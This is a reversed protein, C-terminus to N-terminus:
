QFYAATGIVFQTRLVDKKQHSIKAKDTTSPHVKECEKVAMAVFFDRMPWLVKDQHQGQTKSDTFDISKRRSVFIEQAYDTVNQCNKNLVRTSAGRELLFRVVPLSGAKTALHLSTNGDVDKSNIDYGHIHDLAQTPCDLLLRVTQASRELVEVAIRQAEVKCSCLSKAPREGVCACPDCGIKTLEPLWVMEAAFHLPFRKNTDPIHLPVHYSLLIKLIGMDGTYVGREIAMHVPSLWTTNNRRRQHAQQPPHMNWRGEREHQRSLMMVIPTSNKHVAWSLATRGWRDKSGLLRDNERELHKHEPALTSTSPQFYKNETELLLRVCEVHGGWAAYHLCTWRYQDRHTLMAILKPEHTRSHVRAGKQVHASEYDPNSLVDLLAQVSAPSTKSALHLANAGCRNVLWPNAGNELLTKIASVRGKTIALMLPSMRKDNRTTYGDVPLFRTGLLCKLVPLYGNQAAMCLLRIGENRLVNSDVYENSDHTHNATISHEGVSEDMDILQSFNLGNAYGSTINPATTIAVRLMVVFDRLRPNKHLGCLLGRATEDDMSIYQRTTSASTHTSKCVHTRTSVPVSLPSPMTSKSDSKRENESLGLGSIETRIAQLMQIATLSTGGENFFHTYPGVMENLKISSPTLSLSDEYGLIRTWIQAVFYELESELAPAENNARVKTNLAEAKRLKDECNEGKRIDADDYLRLAMFEADLEIDEGTCPRIDLEHMDSNAEDGGYAHSEMHDRRTEGFGTSVNITAAHAINDANKNSQIDTAPYGHTTMHKDAISELNKRNLKGNPLVPLSPMQIFLAPVQYDPLQTRSHIELVMRVVGWMPGSDVSTYDEFNGDVSGNVNARERLSERTFGVFDKLVVFACLRQSVGKSVSVACFKVLGSAVIVSEIDGLDVRRGRIKVQTDIRGLVEIEGNEHWKGLDGTRFYRTKQIESIACKDAQTQSHAPSQVHPHTLAHSKEARDVSTTSLTVYRENTLVSDNLYGESTQEGGLVIEGVEGVGLSPLYLSGYPSRHKGCVTCVSTASMPVPTSIGGNSYAHVYTSKSTLADASPVTNSVDTHTNVLTSDVEMVCACVNLPVILANIGVLPRGIINSSKGAYLESWTQYVTGETTGYVNFVRLRKSMFNDYAVHIASDSSATPISPTTTTPTLLNKSTSASVWKELMDQPIREGGLSLVRLSPLEHLNADILAWHSPTCFLHSAETLCIAKRLNHVIMARGTTCLIAGALLTTFIDGMSPDWTPNSTLLVRSKTTIDLVIASEKCFQYLSAESCVVGKPTGTSGSTFIIHSLPNRPLLTFNAPSAHTSISKWSESAQVLACVTPNSLLVIDVTDERKTNMHADTVAYANAESLTHTRTCMDKFGSAFLNDTVVVCAGTQEVIAARRSDPFDPDVPVIVGGACKVALIAVVLDLGYLRDSGHHVAIHQSQRNAVDAIAEFLM